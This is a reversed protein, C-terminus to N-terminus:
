PTPATTQVYQFKGSPRYNIRHQLPGVTSTMGPHTVLCSTLDDM